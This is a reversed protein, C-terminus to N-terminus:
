RHARLLPLNSTRSFSDANPPLQGGKWSCDKKTLSTLPSTLQAFKRAHGRLFNCLGLFQRVEHVNSPPPANRVAKLEDTGPKIGEETLRFGLCSVEKSGFVCKQVNTKIKHQVLRKLVQGLMALHEEYTASHVLLEDIYITVNSIGNVVSEM